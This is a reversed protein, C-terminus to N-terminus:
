KLNRLPFITLKGELNYLGYVTMGFLKVRLKSYHKVLVLSLCDQEIHPAFDNCFYLPLESIVNYEFEDGKNCENLYRTLSMEEGWSSKFKDGIPIEKGIHDGVVRMFYEFKANGFSLDEGFYQKYYEEYWDGSALPYLHNLCKESIKTNNFTWPKYSGDAFVHSSFILFFILKIIGQFYRQM